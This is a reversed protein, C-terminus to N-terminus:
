RTRVELASKVGNELLPMSYRSYAGVLWVHKEGQSRQLQEMAAVSAATVVPREFTYDVKLTDAAPERHPNWTQFLDRQLDSSLHADIHNM